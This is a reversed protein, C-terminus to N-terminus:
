GASLWSLDNAGGEEQAGAVHGEGGEPNEEAGERCMEGAEDPEERENREIEKWEPLVPLACGIRDYLEKDTLLTRAGPLYINDDFTAVFRGPFMEILRREREEPSMARVRKRREASLAIFVNLKTPEAFMRIDQGNGSTASLAYELLREDLLGRRKAVPADPFAEELVAALASESYFEEPPSPIFEDPGCFGSLMAKEDETIDFLEGSLFSFLRDRGMREMLGDIKTLPASM